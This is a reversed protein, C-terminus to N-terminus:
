NIFKDSIMQYENPSLKMKFRSVKGRADMSRVVFRKKELKTIPGIATILDWATDTSLYGADSIELDFGLVSIEDGKIFTRTRYIFGFCYYQKIIFAYEQIILETIPIVMCLVILFALVLGYDNLENRFLYFCLLVAVIFLLRVSNLKFAINRKYITM